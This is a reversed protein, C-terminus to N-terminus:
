KIAASLDDLQLRPQVQVSHIKPRKNTMQKIRTRKWINEGILTLFAVVIGVGLVVYVGLMSMMDIRKRTLLTQRPCKNTFDWWKRKLGDLFDNENLRLIALTFDSLATDNEQLAFAMGLATSLGPVTTLDCPPKLAELRLIPGDGIFAFEEKERVMQVGEATDKVVSNKEKVRNWVKKHTEYQSTRFLEYTSSSDVLAVQYSSKAVDELNNVPNVVNKVTFFAALNATYTSVMILICFWYCGALIRGSLSRPTNDAGQQLMCALAFWLSNFYKFEQSSGRGNDDKYGYPSFYNLIFVAVSVVVVSALTCVWVYQHFPSMFQLLDITGGPSPKKILIERTYYMYPVTFDVVHERRETVTFAAVAIDARKSILESIMGNWTGNETEAGYMGDPSPYIEYTFKLERALKNLLDVCYGEYVFNGDKQKRRVIFPADEAVVARLKRGEPSGKSLANEKNRLINGFLAAGKASNWTGIKILSNNQLNLIELEIGKRQGYENFQIPGTLGSLNVASGNISSCPEKNIAQNIVQFADYVTSIFDKDTNNRVAVPLSSHNYPLKFALVINNWNSSLNLSVKGQIIWKFGNRPQCPKKQLMLETNEKSTYLLMVEPELNEIEEMATLISATSVENKGQESLQVLNVTFNTRQSIAYFYGAEYLRGDDFVVAINEWHFTNLIDLTAHTYDRYGVTM